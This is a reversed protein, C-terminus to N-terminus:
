FSFKRRNSVCVCNNEEVILHDPKDSGCLDYYQNYREHLVEMKMLPCLPMTSFAINQAETM